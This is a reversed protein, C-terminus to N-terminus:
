LSEMGELSIGYVRSANVSLVKAREDRSRWDLSAVRQAFRDQRLIPFDSAFLVREEGVIDIVRRFVDFDYLYTSAASDYVVNRLTERVEPMLEYFPLGGGWHALVIRLDPNRAAFRMLKEPTATGKGPYDHGVPESAHLMVPKDSEVCVRFAAELDSGDVLDFGQADANLEGIGSAGADFLDVAAAELGPGFGPSLIGLWALRDPYRRAAERMYDNHLSCLGADRWPFGCLLSRDIGAADMSELLEEATSLRAKPNAYLDAFWADRHRFADRNEGVEPPFVHTHADIVVTDSM